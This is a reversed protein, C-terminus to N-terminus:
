MSCSSAVLEKGIKQYENDKIEPKPYIGLLLINGDTNGECYFVRYGGRKGKNNSSNIVRIRWVKKCFNEEKEVTVIHINLPAISRFALKPLEIKLDRVDEEIKPYKRKLQIVQKIFIESEEIM